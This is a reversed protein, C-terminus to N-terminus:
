PKKQKIIKLLSELLDIGAMGILIYSGKATLDLQVTDLAAKILSIDKMYFVCVGTCASLIVSLSFKGIKFNTPIKFPIIWVKKM